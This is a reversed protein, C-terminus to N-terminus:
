KTDYAVWQLKATDNNFGCSSLAFLLKSDTSIALQTVDGYNCFSVETDFILQHTETSFLQLDYRNTLLVYNSSPSFSAATPYAGTQWEGLITNPDHSYFDYVSYGPGNGGGCPLAAHEGDPSVSVKNCNSGSGGGASMGQETLSQASPDYLYNLASTILRSTAANYSIYNGSVAISTIPMGTSSNYLSVESDDNNKIFLTAAESVAVSNAGGKIYLENVENTALNIRSIFSSTGHTVYLIGNSTDLALNAPVASFQITKIANNNIADFVVVTNSATDGLIVIGNCLALFEGTAPLDIVGDGTFSADQSGSCLEFSDVSPTYEASLTYTHNAQYSLSCEESGICDGSWGTFTYGPQSIPKLTISNPEVQYLKMLCSEECSLLGLREILGGGSSISADIIVYDDEAFDITFNQQTLHSSNFSCSANTGLCKDDTGWNGNFSFHEDPTLSIIVSNESTEATNEIITSCRTECNIAKDNVIVQGKGTVNFVIETYQTSVQANLPFDDNLDTVGDGDDDLDTNNGIGDQDTDVTENADTPFTDNIDAIGDGDSDTNDGLGDNNEDKSENPDNPFLDQFDAVGDGDTDVTTADPMIQYSITVTKPSGPIQSNCNADNCARVTISDDYTGEGLENPSRPYLYLTGNTGSTSVDASYLVGTQNYEVFLYVTEQAGNLSGSITEVDPTTGNIEGYFQVSQKSLSFSASANPGDDDSGCATLFLTALGYYLCKLYL